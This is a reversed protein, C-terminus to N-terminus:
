WTQYGRSNKDGLEALTKVEDFALFAARRDESWRMSHPDYHLKTMGTWATGHRQKLCHFKTDCVMNWKEREDDSLNFDGLAREKAFMREIYLITDALDSLQSAGRISYRDVQEGAAPKRTHAVVHLAVNATRAAEVLQSMMDAQAFNSDRSGGPLRMVTMNDIVVGTVGYEQAAYHITNVMDDVDVQGVHDLIYLKQSLWAMVAGVDADTISGPLKAVSQQVVRALNQIPSMEPSILLFKQPKDAHTTGRLWYLIASTLIASKGSFNQGAWLTLEGLRFRLGQQTSGFPLFCGHQTPDSSFYDMLETTYSTTDRLQHKSVAYANLDVDNVDLFLSKELALQEEYPKELTKM